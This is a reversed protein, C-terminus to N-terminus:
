ESIFVPECDEFLNHIRQMFSQIKEWQPTGRDLKVKLTVEAEKWRQDPKSAVAKETNYVRFEIYYEGSQNVLERRVRGNPVRSTLYTQLVASKSTGSTAGTEFGFLGGPGTSSSYTATAGAEDNASSRSKKKSSTPTPTSEAPKRKSAPKKKLVKPAPTPALPLQSDSDSSYEYNSRFILFDTLYITNLINHLNIIYFVGVCYM